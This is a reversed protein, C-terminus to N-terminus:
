RLYQTWAQGDWYRQKGAVDPAPYWGKAPVVTGWAPQPIPQRRRRVAGIILVLVGFMFAVASGFGAVLWPLAARLGSGFSPAIVVKASGPASVRVRYVGAEPTTFRVVGSYMGEGRTMEESSSGFESTTIRKGDPGTVDVDAATILPAGTATTTTVPGRTRTLGTLEFVTYRGARLTMQEDVPTQQPDKTLSEILPRGVSSGMVVVSTIGVILALLTIVTGAIMTRRGRTSKGPPTGTAASPASPPGGPPFQETVMPFGYRTTRSFGSLDDGLARRFALM